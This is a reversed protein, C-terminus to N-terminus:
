LCIIIKEVDWVRYSWDVVIAEVAECAAGTNQTQRMFRGNTKHAVLTSRM